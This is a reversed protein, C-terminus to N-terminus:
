WSWNEGENRNLKSALDLANGGKLVLRTMLQDDSFMAVLALTRVRKLFELNEM